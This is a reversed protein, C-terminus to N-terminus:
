SEIKCYKHKQRGNLNKGAGWFYELWARAPLYDTYFDESTTLAM